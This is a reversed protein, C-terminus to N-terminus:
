IGVMESYKFFNFFFFNYFNMEYQRVKHINVRRQDYEGQFISDNQNSDNPRPPLVRLLNTQLRHRLNLTRSTIPSMSSSKGSDVSSSTIVGCSSLSPLSSTSVKPPLPSHAREGNANTPSRNETFPLPKSLELELRKLASGFVKWSIKIMMKLEELTKPLDFEFEEKIFGSSHMDCKGIIVQDSQNSICLAKLRLFDASLPDKPMNTLPFKNQIAIKLKRHDLIRITFILDYKNEFRRHFGAGLEASTQGAGFIERLWQNIQIESNSRYVSSLSPAIM